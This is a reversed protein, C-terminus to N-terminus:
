TGQLGFREKRQLTKCPFFSFVVDDLGISGTDRTRGNQIVDLVIGM